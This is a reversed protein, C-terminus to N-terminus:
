QGILLSTEQSVEYNLHREMERNIRELIVTNQEVVTFWGGNVLNASLRRHVIEGIEQNEGQVAILVARTGKEFRGSLYRSGDEVAQNLSILTQGFLHSEALIVFVFLVLLKKM